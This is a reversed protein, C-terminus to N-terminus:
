ESMVYMRQLNQLDSFTGTTIEELQNFRLDSPHLTWCSFLLRVIDLM